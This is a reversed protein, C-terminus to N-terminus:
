SFEYLQRRALWPVQNEFEEPEKNELTPIVIHLQVNIHPRAHVAILLLELFAVILEVASHSVCCQLDHKWVYATLICRIIYTSLVYTIYTGYSM